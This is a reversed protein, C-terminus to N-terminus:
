YDDIISINTEMPTTTKNTIIPITQNTICLFLFCYTIIANIGGWSLHLIASLGCISFIVCHRLATPIVIKEGKLILGNIFKTFKMLMDHLPKNNVIPILLKHDTELTVDPLGHNYGSNWPQIRFDMTTNQCKRMDGYSPWCKWKLQTTILKQLHQTDHLTHLQSGNKHTNNTSYQVSGMRLAATQKQRIKTEKAIDYHALVPKTTLVEKTKQFVFLSTGTDVDLRKVWFPPHIKRTAPGNEHFKKPLMNRNNSSKSEM